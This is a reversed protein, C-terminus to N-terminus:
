THDHIEGQPLLLQCMEAMLTFHGAESSRTLAQLLEELTSTWDCLLQSLACLTVDLSIHSLLQPIFFILPLNTFKVIVDFLSRM